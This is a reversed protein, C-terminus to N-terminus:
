SFLKFSFNCLKNLVLEKFLAWCSDSVRDRDMTM